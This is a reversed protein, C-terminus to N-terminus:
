KFLPQYKMQKWGINLLKRGGKGLRRMQGLLLKTSYFGLYLWLLFTILCECYCYTPLMNMSHLVRPHFGVSLLRLEITTSSMFHM